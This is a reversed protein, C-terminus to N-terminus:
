AVLGAVLDRFVRSRHRHDDFADFSAAAPSLLVVGDPRAWEFGRRVADALDTCEQVEARDDGGLATRVAAALRPGSSYVTLVLLPGTSAAIREALPALDIGRDEGGVVLAVRRGAFADLAAITPLVNTSLGDDVFEVGDVVAVTELRGPLPEFGLAAHEFRDDDADVFGTEELVARAIAANVVNHAGRLGLPEAWRPDYTTASVWRVSPALADGIARLGPDDASAVTVRAGPRRCLALKDRVYNDETRHWVLHDPSLSTVATVEPSVELDCAQYSSTEIVWLDHEGTISPDFPPVGLNGGAIVDLGLRMALHAVLSVVTSKGKTGTVCVVRAPDADNLWLGLGGVVDIGSRELEAVEPRYRSIGPSKIVVECGALSALGSDDAAVVPEIGMARLRAVAARGEVGLGWVGVRDTGLDSWSRGSPM